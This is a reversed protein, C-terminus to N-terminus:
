KFLKYHKIQSNSKVMILYVGAALSSKDILYNKRFYDHVIEQGNSSLLIVESMGPDDFQISVQEHNQSFHWLDDFQTARVINSYAYQGDYDVQRLRYLANPRIETDTYSYHNIEHSTGQGLVKAIPIFDGGYLSKQIEFFHNNSESATSWSLLIGQHTQGADFHIFEVPLPTSGTSGSSWSTLNNFVKYYLSGTTPLNTVTVSTGTGVYLVYENTPGSGMQSNVTVLNNWNSSQSWGSPNSTPTSTIANLGGIVVINSLCSANTWSITTSNNTVQTNSINTPNQPTTCGEIAIGPDTLSPTWGNASYSHSIKEIDFTGALSSSGWAYIRFTIVNTASLTAISSLDITHNSGSSSVTGTYISTGATSFGNTSYEIAVNNPGTGSRDMRIKMENLDLIRNADVQLSFQLYDNNTKAGSLSLTDWHKSNFTTGSNYTIGAGRTLGTVTIGQGEASTPATHPSTTNARDILSILSQSYSNITFICSCLLVILFQFNVKLM